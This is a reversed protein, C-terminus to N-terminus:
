GVDLKRKLDAIEQKLLTIETETTIVRGRLDGIDTMAKRAEELARTAKEIKDVAKDLETPDAARAPAAGLAAGLAAVLAYKPLTM